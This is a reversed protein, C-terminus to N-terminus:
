LPITLVPAPSQHVLKRGISGGEILGSPGGRHYGIAIGFGPRDQIEGLLETVVDGRRIHVPELGGHEALVGVAHQLQVSRGTPIQAALRAPENTREPEVTIPVVPQQLARAIALAENLVVMGRETGDVAALFGRCDLEAPPIVLCPVVSRRLVADVTDGSLVRSLQSRPKRVLVLLDVRAEEAFRSIEIGPLGARIEASWPLDEVETGAWRGIRDRDAESRSGALGDLETFAGAGSPQGDVAVITMRGAASRALGLAARLGFRASETYDTAVAVHWDSSTTPM